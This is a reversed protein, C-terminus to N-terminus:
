YSSHSEALPCVWEREDCIVGLFLVTAELGYVFTQDPDGSCVEVGFHNTQSVAM